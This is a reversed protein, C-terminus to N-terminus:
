IRRRGAASRAYRRAIAQSARWSSPLWGCCLKLLDAPDDSFQQWRSDFAEDRLPQELVPETLRQQEAVFFGAGHRAELVGMAVLRDYAEIVCSQSVGQDRALRRISPLRSGPRLRQHEIWAQLQVTLQQVLPTSSQRELTLNM